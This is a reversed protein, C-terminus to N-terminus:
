KLKKQMRGPLFIPTGLLKALSTDLTQPRMSYGAIIDSALRKWQYASIRGNGSNLTRDCSCTHFLVDEAICVLRSRHLSLPRLGPYKVTM